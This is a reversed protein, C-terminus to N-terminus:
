PAEPRLCRRGAPGARRLLGPLSGPSGGAPSSSQQTVSEGPRKAAAGHSGSGPLHDLLLLSTLVLM